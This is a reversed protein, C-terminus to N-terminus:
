GRFLALRLVMSFGLRHGDRSFEVAYRWQDERRFHDTYSLRVVLSAYITEIAGSFRYAIEARPLPEAPPVRTVSIQSPFVLYGMERFGLDHDLLLEATAELVIREEGAPLRAFGTFALAGTLVARETVAGISKPYNRAAQIIAAGYQNIREPKLLIWDEGPRRTLRHVLGRSQLLRIVTNLEAQKAVRGPTRVRAVPRVNDMALLNVGNEKQELLFERIIQFLKPTSTRPLKEWPIAAMLRDFLETVGEGTAASTKYYEDLGHSGLFHTIERRDVTM